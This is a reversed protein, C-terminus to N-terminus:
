QRVSIELSPPTVHTGTSFVVCALLEQCRTTNKMSSKTVGVALMRMRNTACSESLGESTSAPTSSKRM